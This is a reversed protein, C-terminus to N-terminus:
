LVITLNNNSQSLKLTQKFTFVANQASNYYRLTATEGEEVSFVPITVASTPLGESCHYVGRCEDGVFVGIVDEESFVTESNEALRATLELNTVVPYKSCGQTLPPVFDSEVGYISEGVFQEQGKLTFIQHLTASYYNLSFEVMKGSFENGFVKIIFSVTGKSDRIDGNTLKSPSSLARLDGDVFVAMKDSESAAQALQPELKIMLIVWNEYNTALPEEWDPATVNGSWDIKWEPAEGVDTKVYTEGTQPTPDDDDDDSGCGWLMPLTASALALCLLIRRYIKNTM